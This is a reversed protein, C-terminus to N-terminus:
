GAARVEMKCANKRPEGEGTEIQFAASSSKFLGVLPPPVRQRAM